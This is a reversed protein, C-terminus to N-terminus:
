VYVLHLQSTLPLITLFAFETVVDLYSVCHRWESTVGVTHRWDPSKSQLCLTVKNLYKVYFFMYCVTSVYHRWSPLLCQLATWTLFYLPNMWVTRRLEPLLITSAILFCIHIEKPYSILLTVSTSFMTVGSLCSVNIHRWEPLLCQPAIWICTTHRRKFLMCVKTMCAIGNTIANLHCANNCVISTAIMTFDYLCLVYHNMLFNAFSNTRNDRNNLFQAM